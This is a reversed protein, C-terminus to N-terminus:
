PSQNVPIPAQRRSASRAPAARSSTGRRGHDPRCATPTATQIDHLADDITAHLPLTHGARTVKLMLAIGHNARALHVSGGYRAHQAAANVLLNVGAEALRHVYALNLILHDARSRRATIICAALQSTTSADLVGTLDILTIGSPLTHHSLLLYSM